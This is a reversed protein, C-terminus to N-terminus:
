ITLNKETQLQLRLVAAVTIVSGTDKYLPTFSSIDKPESSKKTFSLIIMFM